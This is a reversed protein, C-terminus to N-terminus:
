PCELEEVTTTAEGAVEGSAAPNEPTTTAAEETSSATQAAVYGVSLMGLVAFLVAIGVIRAGSVNITKM